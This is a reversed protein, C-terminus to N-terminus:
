TTWEAVKKVQQVILKFMKLIEESEIKTENVILADITKELLAMRDVVRHMQDDPEEWKPKGLM